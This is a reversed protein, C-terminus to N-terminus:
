ARGNKEAGCYVVKKRRFGGSAGPHSWRDIYSISKGSYHSDGICLIRPYSTEHGFNFASASTACPCDSILCVHEQFSRGPGNHIRVLCSRNVGDKDVSFHHKHVSEM